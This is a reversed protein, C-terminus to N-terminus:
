DQIEEPLCLKQIMEGSIPQYQGSKLGGLHLRGIRIRRLLKVKYGLRALIRKVEHKKGERLTLELISIDRSHKILRVEVPRTKGEALWVGKRLKDLAINELYGRVVVQYTKTVGYRPHTLLNCLAGDNTVIVLGESDADLRGVTYLRAPVNRFLDIVLRRGARDANACIYGRPKNIIFYYKKETKVPQGAYRIKHRTPDIKIGLETVAAGDVMIKGAKILEECKRRSGLGAEALVKHLREEM